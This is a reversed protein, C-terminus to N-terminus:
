SYDDYRGDMLLLPWVPHFAASNRYLEKAFQLACTSSLVYSLGYQVVVTSWHLVM